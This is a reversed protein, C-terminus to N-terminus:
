WEIKLNRIEANAESANDGGDYNKHKFPLTVFKFMETSPLINKFTITGKFPVSTPIKSSSYKNADETGLTGEKGSFENGSIDYAKSNNDDLSVSKHVQHHIILFEITVTQDDTAGKCSLVKFEFADNFSKIEVEPNVTNIGLQAKLSLNEAIIADCNQSFIMSSPLLLLGILLNRKKM